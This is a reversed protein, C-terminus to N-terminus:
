SATPLPRESHERLRRFIRQLLRSVQMQTVGIEEGIEAQSQDEFFRLQLIRRERATLTSCCGPWSWRVEAAAQGDDLRRGPGRHDARGRAHGPGALRAPVARVGRPGGRGGAPQPRPRARAGRDSPERGLTASLRETSRHDEVAAGPHVAAAPDDLGPRPLAAPGRRPDDARRLDPPGPPGDPRVQAGGQGAGRVRDAPPGRHRGRPQPVARGRGRRRRPQAAGGPGAPPPTGRSSAATPRWSCSTPGARATRVAPRVPRTARSWRAETPM